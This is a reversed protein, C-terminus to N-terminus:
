LCKVLVHSRRVGKLGRLQLMVSAKYLGLLHSQIRIRLHVLGWSDLCFRASVKIHHSNLCASGPLRRGINVTQIIIETM